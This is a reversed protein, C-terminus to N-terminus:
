ICQIHLSKTFELITNYIRTIATTIKNINLINGNEMSSSQRNVKKLSYAVVGELILVIQCYCRRVTYGYGIVLKCQYRWFTWNFVLKLFKPLAETLHLPYSFWPTWIISKFTYIDSTLLRLLNSLQVSYTYMNSTESMKSLRKIVRMEGNCTVLLCVNLWFPTESVFCKDVFDRM